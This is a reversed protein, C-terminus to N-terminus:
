GASRWTITSPRSSDGAGPRSHRRDAGNGGGSLLVAGHAVGPVRHGRGTGHGGLGPRHIAGLRGGGLHVRGPAIVAAQGTALVAPLSILTARHQRWTVWAMRRWPLPRPAHDQGPQAPMTLVTM